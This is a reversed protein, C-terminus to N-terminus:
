EWFVFTTLAVIITLLILSFIVGRKQRSFGILSEILSIVLDLM